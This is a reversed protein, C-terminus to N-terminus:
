SYSKIFFSIITSFKTTTTSHTKEAFSFFIFKINIINRKQYMEHSILSVKVNSQSDNQSTPRSSNVSNNDTVIQEKNIDNNLSTTSTPPVSSGINLGELSLAAAVEAM